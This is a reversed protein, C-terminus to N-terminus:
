VGHEIIFSVGDPLWSIHEGHGSSRRRVEVELLEGVFEHTM